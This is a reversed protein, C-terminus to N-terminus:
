ESYNSHSNHYRSGGSHDRWKFFTSSPLIQPLQDDRAGAQPASVFCSCRVLDVATCTTPWLHLHPCWASHYTQGNTDRTRVYTCRTQAYTHTHTPPPPPPPPCPPPIKLRFTTPTQECNYLHSVPSMKVHKQHYLIQKGKYKYRHLTASNTSTYGKM